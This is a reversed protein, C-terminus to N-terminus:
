GSTRLRLRPAGVGAHKSVYGLLQMRRIVRDMRGRVLPSPRGGPNARGLRVPNPLIAALFASQRLSLHKPRKKFYHWAAERVGYIGPGWEVVNMYIELIRRKPLEEEMRWTLFAEQLKRALTKDGGLFLNKVLQQSVTSGGREIRGAELNRALSAGIQRLDFGQHRWFAVDESAVIASRLFVPTDEYATYSKASPDLEVVRGGEVGEGFRVAHEFPHALRAMDPGGSRM